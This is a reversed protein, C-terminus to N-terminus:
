GKVNVKKLEQEKRAHCRTVQSRYVNKTQQKKFIFIFIFVINKTEIEFDSIVDLLMHQFRYESFLLVLFMDPLNVSFYWLKVFFWELYNDVIDFSIILYFNYEFFSNIHQLVLLHALLSWSFIPDGNSFEVALPFSIM